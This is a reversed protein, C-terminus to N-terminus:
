TIDGTQLEAQGSWRSSTAPLVVEYKGGIAAKSGNASALRTAVTSSCISNVWDAMLLRHRDSSATVRKLEPQQGDPCTAFPLNKTIRIRSFRRLHSIAM